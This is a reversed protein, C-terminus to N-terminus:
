MNEPFSYAVWDPLSVSLAVGDTEIQSSNAIRDLRVLALGKNGIRSGIVGAPKGDALVDTAQPPIGTEASVKVFRKRVAGRHQMRSVVEQGVYCGKQFDVGDFQDMLTEHPYANGLEFDELSQPIGLEIRQASYSAQEAHLMHEGYVRFGLEPHRPDRYWNEGSPEEVDWVAMVAVPEPDNIVADARLKYFALRKAFEFAVSSDVDIVYADGQRFLFFDFLIKGQPSLLAGFRLMGDDMAMVKCTVLNELLHESDTGSVKVLSRNKLVDFKM